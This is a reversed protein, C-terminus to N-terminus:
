ELCAVCELPEAEVDVCETLPRDRHAGNRGQEGVTIRGAQDSALWVVAAGIEDPDLFDGTVSTSKLVQEMEPFEAVFGRTMGSDTTGPLVSNVRIGKSRYEVAAARSLGIIGHKAATYHPLFPAAM